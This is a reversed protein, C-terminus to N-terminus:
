RRMMNGRNFREMRPREPKSDTAPDPKDEASNRLRYGQGYASNRNPKELQEPPLEAPERTQQHMGSHMSEMHKRMQERYHSYEEYSMGQRQAQDPFFIDEAMAAPVFLNMCLVLQLTVNRTLM